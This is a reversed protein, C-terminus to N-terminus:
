NRRPVNFQVTADYNNQQAGYGPRNGSNRNQPVQPNGYPNNNYPNPRPPNNYYGTQPQAGYNQQSVQGQVPYGNQQPYGYNRNAPQQPYGPNQQPYGQQAPTAGRNQGAYPNQMGYGNQPQAYGNNQPYNPYNQNRGDGLYGGHQAPYGNGNPNPRRQANSPRQANPNRNGNGNGYLRDDYYNQPINSRTGNKKRFVYKQLLAAADDNFMAWVFLAAFLVFVILVLLLIGKFFGAIASGASSEKEAAATDNAANAAEAAEAAEKEEAEKAQIGALLSNKLKMVVKKVARSYIGSSFDEEFYNDRISAIEENTLIEELGISPVFFYNKDEKAILVLIGEGLKWNEFLDRAYDAIDTGGLTNVTCVAITYGVDGQLNKNTDRIERILEETLIGAEDAIYNQHKPFGAAFVASPLLTFMVLLVALFAIFIKNTKM